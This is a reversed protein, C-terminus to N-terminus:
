LNSPRLKKTTLMLKMNITRKALPPDVSRKDYIPTTTGTKEQVKPYHKKKVNPEKDIKKIAALQLTQGPFIAYPASLNNYNAIDRYDNGTYWAIAFLTDGKKVVYTDSVSGSDNKQPQSNLLTVPAPGSRTSCATLNIVSIVLTLLIYRHKGLM